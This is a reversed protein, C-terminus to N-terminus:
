LVHDWKGHPHRPNNLLICTACLGGLRGNAIAQEAQYFKLNAYYLCAVSFYATIISSWSMIDGVALEDFLQQVNRELKIDFLYMSLLHLLMFHALCRPSNGDLGAVLSTSCRDIEPVAGKFIELVKLTRKKWEEYEQPNLLAQRVHFEMTELVRMHNRMLEGITLPQKPKGQGSSSEPFKKSGSCPSKLNFAKKVKSTATSTLSLQVQSAPSNHNPSDSHNNCSSKLIFSPPKGSSTRCATVFIEYATSKPSSKLTKKSQFRFQCFIFPDSSSKWELKATSDKGSDHMLLLSSSAAM